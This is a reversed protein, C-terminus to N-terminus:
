QMKQQGAFRQWQEANLGRAAQFCDALEQLEDLWHCTTAGGPTQQIALAKECARQIEGLAAVVLRLKFLQRFDM